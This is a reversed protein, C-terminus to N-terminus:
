WSLNNQVQDVIVRWEQSLIYHDSLSFLTTTHKLVFSPEWWRVYSCSVWWVRSVNTQHQALTASPPSVGFWCLKNPFINDGDEATYMCSMFVDLESDWIHLLAEM